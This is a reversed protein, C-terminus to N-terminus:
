ISSNQAYVVEHLYGTLDLSLNRTPIILKPTIVEPILLIDGLFFRALKKLPTHAISKLLFSEERERTLLDQYIKRIEGFAFNSKENARCFDILKLLVDKEAEQIKTYFSLVQNIAEQRKPDEGLVIRKKCCKELHKVKKRKWWNDIGALALYPQRFWIFWWTNVSFLGIIYALLCLSFMFRYNKGLREYFNLHYLFGGIINEFSDLITEKEGESLPFSLSPAYLEIELLWPNRGGTEEGLKAIHVPLAAVWAGEEYWGSLHVPVVYGPVRVEEINERWDIM